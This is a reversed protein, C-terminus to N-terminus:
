SLLEFRVPGLTATDVLSTRGDQDSIGSVTSGDHLYAVYRQHPLPDYTQMHRLVVREDTSIASSAFDLPTPTGGGPGGHVIASAKVAHRGASQQSIAGDAWETQAGKSVIRVLPAEIYIAESSILSIRKSSKVEVGGQHAELTLNGRAAVLKIGLAHAFASIGKAARLFLNRGAIMEADGGSVVDVKKESGFAVNDQSALLMGAPATVAVIPAAGEGSPATNTGDEWRRLKDALEALRGSSAEDGAHQEALKAMEDVVSQM